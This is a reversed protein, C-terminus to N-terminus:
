VTSKAANKRQMKEENVGQVEEEAEGIIAL